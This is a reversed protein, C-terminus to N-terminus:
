HKIASAINRFQHTLQVSNSLHKRVCKSYKRKNGDLYIYYIM